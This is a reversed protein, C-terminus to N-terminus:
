CFLYREFHIVLFLVQFLKLSIYTHFLTIKVMVCKLHILIYKHDVGHDLSIQWWCLNFHKMALQIGSNESHSFEEPSLFCLSYCYRDTWFSITGYCICKSTSVCYKLRKFANENTIHWSWHSWYIHYLIICDYLWM